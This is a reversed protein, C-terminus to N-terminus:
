RRGADRVRAYEGYDDRLRWTLAAGVSLACSGAFLLFWTRYADTGAGLAHAFAIPWMAYTAWHVVRFIRAGVRRRLLSAAIVVALVDVALTGLGLWLPRYEGVFPVALDVLRLQAYPDLLLLVLHSMVLLTAALAAFRHVEAVAFRPLLLLPRGSRAAIGLTLAVTLFGLATIGTGRGVAWLAEDTM